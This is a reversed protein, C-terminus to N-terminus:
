NAINWEGNFIEENIKMASNYDLKNGGPDIIFCDADIMVIFYDIFNSAMSIYDFRSSIKNGDHDILYFGVDADPIYHEGYGVSSYAPLAILKWVGDSIINGQVDYIWVASSAFSGDSKYAVIRNESIIVIKTYNCEIIINEENDVVGYFDRKKDDFRRTIKLAGDFYEKYIKIEGASPSITEEEEPEVQATKEIAPEEEPEIEEEVAVVTEKPPEPTQLPPTEGSCASFLIIAILLLASLKKM